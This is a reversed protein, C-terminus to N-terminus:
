STPLCPAWSRVRGCKTQGRRRVAGPPGRLWSTPLRRYSSRQLGLIRSARGINGALRKFGKVRGLRLHDGRWGRDSAELCGTRGGDDHTSTRSDFTPGPYNSLDYEPIAAGYYTDDKGGGGSSFSEYDAGGSLGYQGLLAIAAGILAFVRQLPATGVKRRREEVGMKDHVQPVQRIQRDCQRVPLHRRPRVGRSEHLPCGFSAPDGGGALSSGVDQSSSSPVDAPVPEQPLLPPEADSLAVKAVMTTSDPAHGPYITLSAQDFPLEPAAIQWDVTEIFQKLSAVACVSFASINVALHGNLSVVPVEASLREFYVVMRPLDLVMGLAKLLPNSALLPIGADLVGAGFVFPSGDDLVAPVYARHDAPIPDGKGFQFRDRCDVKITDLDYVQLLSCHEHLWRRGCCTRQCATDLVMYGVFGSSHMVDQTAFVVNVQYHGEPQEASFATGYGSRVEYNGLDSHMVTFAQHPRDAKAGKGGKKALASTSPGPNSTSSSAQAGAGSVKCQPDGRWHGIEGCAACATKKKLESPPVKNGSFKRGLRVSALRRATVTLVQVLDDLDDGQDNDDAEDGPGDQNQDDEAAQNDDLDDSGGEDADEPVQNETEAGAETVFIKRPGFKGSGKGNGHSQNQATAQLNQSGFKGTGKTRTIMQGDKGMVPPPPKFDPFQMVLSESIDEFTLSYRSGVLVLRQDQPSLRSRDLLRSGRAEADYMAGVSIDVASLNRETRRYRNVFARLHENPYRNIGEFDSLYRRKQYVLRQSMPGRLQDLIYTIGQASNIRELPAHELEQEPEGSLANYLQLSAERKSMYPEVQIEWLRVKREYKSFARLDEKEYTWKPPQPPAGSRWKVGREPGMRSTWSPTTSSTGKKAKRPTMADELAAPQGRFHDQDPEVPLGDPAAPRRLDVLGPGPLQSDPRPRPPRSSVTVVSDNTLTESEAQEPWDGGEPDLPGQRRRRRRRRAAASEAPRAESPAAPTGSPQQDSDATEATVTARLWPPPPEQGEPFFMWTGFGTRRWTQESVRYYDLSGCDACSWNGDLLRQLNPSDCVACRWVPAPQVAAASHGQISTGRQSASEFGNLDQEEAAAADAAALNFIEPITPM